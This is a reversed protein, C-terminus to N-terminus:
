TAGRNVELAIAYLFCFRQVVISPAIQFKPIASSKLRTGRKRARESAHLQLLLVVLLSGCDSIPRIPRFGISSFAAPELNEHRRSDVAGEV